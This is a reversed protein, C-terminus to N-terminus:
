FPLIDRQPGFTKGLEDPLAAPAGIQFGENRRRPVAAIGHVVAEKVARRSKSLCRQRLDDGAFEADAKACCGARHDRAGAIQRRQQGVQLRAIHQEDVLNVTQVRRNLLNEIRRHLIELQIQDNALPRRCSRHPNIQRGEGKDACCGAGAQQCRRKTVAESNLHPQLEVVTVFQRHDEGVLGQPKAHIQCIIARRFDGAARTTRRPDGTSQQAADAIDGGDATMVTDGRIHGIVRQRPELHIGAPKVGHVPAIEAAKGLIVAAPRDANFRQRRHQGLM